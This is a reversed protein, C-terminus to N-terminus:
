KWRRRPEIKRQRATADLYAQQRIAKMSDSEPAYPKRSVALGMAAAIKAVEYPPLRRGKWAPAQGKDGGCRIAPRKRM